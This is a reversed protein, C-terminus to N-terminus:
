LWDRRRFFYSILLVGVFSAVLLIWFSHISDAGPLHVNMGYLGVLFVPLSVIVSLSALRKMVDNLNNSIISSFADMLHALNDRSINNVEIAQKIEILCEELLQRKNPTFSLKESKLLKELVLENSRLATAFYVLSKQYRMLSLVERNQLSHQLRNELRHVSENIEDLHCLYREAIANLAGLLIDHSTELPASQATSQLEALVESKHKNITIIKDQLLFFGLTATTHPLEKSAHHLSPERLIILSIGDEERLRPRENPDLAHTMMSEPIKCEREIQQLEEPTPDQLAIWANSPESLNTTQRM